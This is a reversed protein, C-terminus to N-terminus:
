YISKRYTFTGGDMICDPPPSYTFTTASLSYIYPWQMDEFQILPQENSWECPKASYISFTGSLQYTTDPHNINQTYSNNEFFLTNGNGRPYTQRGWSSEVSVLEWKGNLDPQPSDSEKNCSVLSLVTAAITFYGNISM